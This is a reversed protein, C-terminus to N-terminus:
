FFEMCRESCTSRANSSEIFYLDQRQNKVQYEFTERACLSSVCVVINGNESLHIVCSFLVSHRLFALAATPISLISPPFCIVSFDYFEDGIPIGMSM